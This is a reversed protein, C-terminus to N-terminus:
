NSAVKENKNEETLENIKFFRNEIMIARYVKGVKQGNFTNNASMFSFSDGENQCRLFERINQYNFLLGWFTETKLEVQIHKTNNLVQNYEQPTAQYGEEFFYEQKLCAKECPCLRESMKELVGWM